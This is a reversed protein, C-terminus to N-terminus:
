EQWDDATKKIKLIKESEALESFRYYEPEYKIKLRGTWGNRNKAINVQYINRPNKENDKYPWYVLLSLDCSEEIKGSEKLQHLQPERNADGQGMRNIQAGLILAFNERVAMERMHLIYDDIVQRRDKVNASMIENIHDIIIIDPKQHLAVMATDIEKWSRGVYDCYELRRNLLVKEFDEWKESIEPITSYSGKILGFNNVQAVNCFLREQMASVDMELSLYLVSAKESLDWALHNMFASKGHSTRGAVITMERRKIGWIFSNLSPLTSIALEPREGREKLRKKTTSFYDSQSHLIQSSGMDKKTIM